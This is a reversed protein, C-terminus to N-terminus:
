VRPPKSLLEGALESIIWEEAIKDGHFRSVVMELWQVKQESPPVGMMDAKHTGSLFRQWAVLDGSQLLVEVKVVKIDPIASRLQKVFRRIFDHGVHEKEGSHAIYDTIFLDDIFSM